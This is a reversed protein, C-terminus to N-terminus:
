TKKRNRENYTSYWVLTLTFNTTLNKLVKFTQITNLLLFVSNLKYDLVKRLSIVFAWIVVLTKVGLDLGPYIDIQEPLTMVNGINANFRLKADIRDKFKPKITEDAVTVEKVDLLYSASFGISINEGLGFDSGVNLGTGGDQFNAGIHMKTDGKGTYAQQANALFASFLFVLTLIKNNM